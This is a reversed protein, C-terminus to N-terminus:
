RSSIASSRAEAVGSIRRRSSWSMGPEAPALALRLASAEGGSCCALGSPPSLLAMSPESGIIFSPCAAGSAACAPDGFQKGGSGLKLLHV